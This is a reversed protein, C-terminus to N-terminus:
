FGKGGLNKIFQVVDELNYLHLWKRSFKGRIIQKSYGTFLCLLNTMLFSVVVNSPALKKWARLKQWKELPKFM